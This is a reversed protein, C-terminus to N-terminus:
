IEWYLTVWVFYNPSTDTVPDYNGSFNESRKGSWGVTKGNDQVYPERVDWNKWHLEKGIVDDVSGDSKIEGTLYTLANAIKTARTKGATISPAEFEERKLEETDWGIRPKKLTRTIILIFNM